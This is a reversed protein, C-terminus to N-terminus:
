SAVSCKFGELKRWGIDTSFMNCIVLLLWSVLTGVNPDYLRELLSIVTSKGCGSPGVLALTQGVRVEINLGQLVPITPRNPYTFCVKAISM